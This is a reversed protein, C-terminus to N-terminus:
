EPTPEFGEATTIAEVLKRAQDKRYEGYNGRAFPLLASHAADLQGTQVLCVARNYKAELVFSGSPYHTLYADYAALAASCNGQSFQADHGAKYAAIAEAEARRKQEQEPDVFSEPEAPVPLSTVMPHDQSTPQVALGLAPTPQDAPPGAPESANPVAPLPVVGAQSTRRATGRKNTLPTPEPQEEGIGLAVSAREVILTLQGSAAAWATSGGLLVFMPIGFAWRKARRPRREALTRIVRARTAEPVATTGDYEQRLASTYQKLLDDNM